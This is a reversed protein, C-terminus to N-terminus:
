RLKWFNTLIESLDDCVCMCLFKICIFINLYKFSKLNINKALDNRIFFANVGNKDVGVLSYKKQTIDLNILNFEDM